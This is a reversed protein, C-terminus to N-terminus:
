RAALTIFPSLTNTSKKPTLASRWWPAGANRLWFKFAREHNLFRVHISEASQMPQYTGELFQSFDYLGIDGQDGVTEMYETFFIPRGLLLTPGDDRASQNWILHGEDDKMTMLQPITDHNAMWLSNGYRWSRSRMKVINAYVITDATQSTEKAVVILAPSKNVGLFEGTGTGNLRENLMNSKFEDNFGKAILASFSIPSDTLIEETAYAFGFLSYAELRIKETEMKSASKSATEASRSVTLGGSVSTTHNKDVRAPINIVTTEMPVNTTKGATPDDESPVTLLNPSFAEPVLFGGYPDSYSGQEDTGATCRLIQLGASLKRGPKQYAEMVSQLFHRPSKFGKKPDDAILEKGVKIDTMTGDPKSKPPDISELEGNVQDLKEQQEIRAKMKEVESLNATFKQQEEATMERNEKDATDFIAQAEAHLVSMKNKMESVKM